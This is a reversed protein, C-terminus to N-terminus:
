SALLEKIDVIKPEVSMPGDIVSEPDVFDLISDPLGGSAPRIGIGGATLFTPHDQLDVGREVMKKLRNRAERVLRQQSLQGTSILAVYRTGDVEVTQDRQVEFSVNCLRGLGVLLEAFATTKLASAGREPAVVSGRIWGLLTEADGRKMGDIARQLYTKTSGDFALNQALDDLATMLYGAALHDLFDDATEALRNDMTLGPALKSWQTDDWETRIGPSVVHVNTVGGTADLAEEIRNRVYGAIDGIGVFVVVAASLRARVHDTVWTPPTELEDSAALLSDPVSACGHVKLLCRENIGLLDEEKLVASIRETASGREICTDWNTTFVEVAGELLLMSLLRHGLGPDASTFEALGVTSLRIAQRGNPQQDVVDFIGVLDDEDCSGLVPVSTALKKHLMRALAGGGPLATPEAFSLGAGAYIVLRGTKCREAMMSAYLPLPRGIPLSTVGLV